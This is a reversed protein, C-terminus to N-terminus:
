NNDGKSKSKNQNTENNLKRFAFLIGWYMALGYVPATFVAQIVTLGLSQLFLNTNLQLLFHTM